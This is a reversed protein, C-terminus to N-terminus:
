HVTKWFFRTIRFFLLQRLLETSLALRNSNRKFSFFVVIWLFNWCCVGCDLLFFLNHYILPTKRQWQFLKPFMKCLILLELSLVVIMCLKLWIPAFLISTTLVYKWVLTYVMIIVYMNMYSQKWIAFTKHYMMLIM